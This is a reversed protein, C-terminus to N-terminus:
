GARHLFVQGWQDKVFIEPPFSDADALPTEVHLLGEEFRVHLKPYAALPGQIRQYCRSERGTSLLLGLLEWSGYRVKMVHRGKLDPPCNQSLAENDAAFWCWSLTL